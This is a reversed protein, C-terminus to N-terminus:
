LSKLFQMRIVIEDESNSGVVNENNLFPVFPLLDDGIKFYDDIGSITIVTLLLTNVQSRNCLFDCIQLICRKM